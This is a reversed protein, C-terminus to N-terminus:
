AESARLAEFADTFRSTKDAPQKTTEVWPLYDRIGGALTRAARRRALYNLLVAGSRGKAYAGAVAMDSPGTPGGDVVPGSPLGLKAVIIPELPRSQRALGALRGM